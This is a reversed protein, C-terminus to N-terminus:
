HRSSQGERIRQPQAGLIYRREWSSFHARALMIQARLVGPGRAGPKLDAQTPNNVTEVDFAQASATRKASGKQASAFSIALFLGAVFPFTVHM